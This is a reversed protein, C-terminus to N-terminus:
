QGPNLNSVEVRALAWTPAHLGPPSPIHPESGQDCRNPPLQLVAAIRGREQTDPRADRDLVGRAVSRALKQAKLEAPNERGVQPWVDTTTEGILVDYSLNSRSVARGFKRLMAGDALRLGM